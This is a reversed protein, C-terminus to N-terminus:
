NYTKEILEILKVYDEDSLQNYFYLVNVKNQIIDKTSYYKYKILAELMEKYAM